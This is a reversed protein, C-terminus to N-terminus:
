IYANIIPLRKDMVKKRIKNFAMRHAITDLNTEFYHVTHKEISNAKFESTQRAYTDYMEYFGLKQKEIADLNEQLLERGDIYDNFEYM